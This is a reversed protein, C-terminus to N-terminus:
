IIFILCLMLSIRFVSLKTALLRDKDAYMKYIPQGNVYIESLFRQCRVVQRHKSVYRQMTSVKQLYWQM